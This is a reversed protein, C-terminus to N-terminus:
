ASRKRNRKNNTTDTGNIPKIIEAEKAISEELAKIVMEAGRVAGLQLLAQETAKTSELRLDSLVTQAATLDLGM